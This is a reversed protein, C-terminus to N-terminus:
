LISGTEYVFFTEFRCRRIEAVPLLDRHNLDGFYMDFEHSM